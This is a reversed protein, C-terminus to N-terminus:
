ELWLTDFFQKATTTDGAETSVFSVLFLQEGRVVGRILLTIQANAPPSIERGELGSAFTVPTITLQQNAPQGGIKFMDAWAADPDQKFKAAFEPKMQIKTVEYASKTTLIQAKNSWQKASQVLPGTDAMPPPVEAKEPFNVGPPLAVTFGEGQFKTWGSPTQPATLKKPGTPQTPLGTKAPDNNIMSMVVLIVGVAVGLVTVAGVIGLVLRITRKKKEEERNKGMVKRKGGKKKPKEDEEEDEDRRRSKKKPKDDEDDDVAENVEVPEPKRKVAAAVPKAAATPKKKAPTPPPDDDVVEFDAEAAPVAVPTGCKPCKVRKGAAADPARLKAGCSCAVTIPM